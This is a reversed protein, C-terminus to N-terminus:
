KIKINFPMIALPGDERVADVLLRVEAPLKSMIFSFASRRGPLQIMRKRKPYIDISVRADEPINALRKAEDFAALLGGSKDVLGNELAQSGMWVRGQAIKKVSPKTMKRGRAVKDVFDEYFATMESMLNKREAPTFARSASDADAYKGRTITEVNIGIKELLGSLNIKGAIIGISGTITAPNAFIVDSCAAVYYGGSAAVDGMSTILPKKDEGSNEKDGVLFAERWILDSAVSSGGPSSVRLIVAEVDKDERAAKIAASITRSGANRGMASYESSSGQTINGTIYILAFKPYKKFAARPGMLSIRESVYKFGKCVKPKKGLIEEIYDDLADEYALKDVLGAELADRALLSGNDVLRKIDKEKMNRGQAIASILQDYLTDLMSNVAEKHAASMKTRTFTDSASKFDGIHLLEAKVNIKDLAGKFFTVEAALGRVNFGASPITIIRDFACALYYSINEAEEMFAITIKGSDRIEKIADRIEQAQGWGLDSSRILVLVAKLGPDRRAERLTFLVDRLTTKSQTFRRWWGAPPAEEVIEGSLELILLDYKFMRPYLIRSASIILLPIARLINAAISSNM